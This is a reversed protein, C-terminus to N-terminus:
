LLTGAPRPRWFQQSAYVRLAELFDKEGNLAAEVQRAEADAAPETQARIRPLEQEIDALSLYRGRKLNATEDTAAMLLIRYSAARALQTKHAQVLLLIVKRLERDDM